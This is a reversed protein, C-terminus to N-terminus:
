AYRLDIGLQAFCQLLEEMVLSLPLAFKSLWSALCGFLPLFGSSFCVSACATKYFLKSLDRLYVQCLFVDHWHLIKGHGTGPQEPIVPGPLKMVQETWKMIMLTTILVWRHLLNCFIEQAEQLRQWHLLVQLHTLLQKRWLSWCIHLNPFGKCSCLHLLLLEANRSHIWLFNSNLVFWTLCPQLSVVEQYQGHLPFESVEHIGKFLHVEWNLCIDTRLEVVAEGIERGSEIRAAFAHDASHSPRGRLPDRPCVKPLFHILHRLAPRPQWGLSRLNGMLHCLQRHTSTGRLHIGQAWPTHNWLSWSIMPHAQLAQLRLMQLNPAHCWNAALGGAQGPM